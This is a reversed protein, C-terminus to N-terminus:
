SQTEDTELALIQGYDIVRDKGGRKAGYMARDARAILQRGHAIEETLSAIGFSATVAENEWTASRMRERLREAFIHAGETSAGPLLVVFEEGGYRAATDTIRLTQDILGGLVHLVEDGAAHGFVDNRRKFSDIDLLVVSLQSNNRRAVRVEYEVQEDLVRRNALGTLGDITALKQLQANAKTLARERALEESM